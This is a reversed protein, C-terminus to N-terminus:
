VQYTACFAVLKLQVPEAHGKVEQVGIVIDRTEAGERRWDEDYPM